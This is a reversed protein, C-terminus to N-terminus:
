LQPMKAILSRMDTRWTDFYEKESGELSGPNTNLLRLLWDEDALDPDATCRLKNMTTVPNVFTQFVRQREYSYHDLLALTKGENIILDISDALAEADLLGTCLGM